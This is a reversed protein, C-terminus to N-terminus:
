HRNHTPDNWFKEDVTSQDAIAQDFAEDPEMSGFFWDFSHRVPETTGFTSLTLAEVVTQNFSKGELLARKRLAQDVSLPVNRLTYQIKTM